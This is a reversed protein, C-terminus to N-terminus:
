SLSRLVERAARGGSALAGNLSANDRHDGCVFLGDDLRVPRRPPDMHEPLQLPQAHEIRYHGVLNWETVQGGYWSALHKRADGELDAGSAADPDVVTVSVLSRDAPAYSGAVDSVVALNNVPGAAPGDGNLVLIGEKVPSEPAEFYLCTVGRSGPDPVHDGLLRSAEPGEVAVVVAEAEISGGGEFEVQAATVARVAHNLRLVGEPLRAAMQEPLTKMGGSPLSSTGEAFMRFYYRFLKASVQLTPDLLVGGFFPRFFRDLMGASFGAARLLEETTGAPAELLREPNGGMVEQRLRAVRLKDAFNGVPAAISRLADAMELGPDAMRHFGGEARVMAGPYFSRLDLEEMSARRRLEPYAELIVQFGRDLLFGDVVDTRVRGGVGDSAEVLCVDRGGAALDLACALGALGAGVVVVEARDQIGTM